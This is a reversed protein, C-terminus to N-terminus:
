IITGTLQSVRSQLAAAFHQSILQQKLLSEIGNQLKSMNRQDINVRAERVAMDFQKILQQQANDNPKFPLAILIKQFNFDFFFVYKRTQFYWYLLTGAVVIAIDILASIPNIADAFDHNTAFLLTLLCIIFVELRILWTAKASLAKKIVQAEPSFQVLPIMEYLYSFPSKKEYCITDDEGFQISSQSYRYNKQSYKKM